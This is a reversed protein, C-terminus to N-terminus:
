RVRIRVRLYSKILFIGTSTSTKANSKFKESSSMKITLYLFGQQPEKKTPCARKNYLNKKIGEKQVWFYKGAFFYKKCKKTQLLITFDALLTTFDNKAVGTRPSVVEATEVRFQVFCRLSLPRARVALDVPGLVRFGLFLVIVHLETANTLFSSLKQAAIRTGARVV